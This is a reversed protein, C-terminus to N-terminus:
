RNSFSMRNGDVKSNGYGRWNDFGHAGQNDFYGGGTFIEVMFGGGNGMKVSFQQVLGDFLHSNKLHMNWVMINVKCGNKEYEIQVAQSIEQIRRERGIVDLDFGVKDFANVVLNVGHPVFESGITTAIAAAAAQM